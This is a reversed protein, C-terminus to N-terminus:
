GDLRYIRWTKGNPGMWPEVTLKGEVTIPRDTYDIADEPKLTVAMNHHFQGGRGFKCTYDRILIFQKIDTPHYTTGPCIKVSRVCPGIVGSPVMELDAWAPDLDEESIGIIAIRQASTLKLAAAGFKEAVEAIKRLQAPSTLGAPIPPAIAFTERDRQVIAGKELIDKKM